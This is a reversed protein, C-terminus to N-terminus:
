VTQWHIQALQATHSTNTFITYDTHTGDATTVLEQTGTTSVTLTDGSNDAKITLQSAGANDVMNQIDQATITLTTNSSSNRIDLVDINNTVNALATMNYSYGGSVLDQLVMTNGEGTDRAEGDIKTPLDAVYQTSVYFTDNGDGGYATDHGQNAYIIDNGGEGRLEDDGLGCTM